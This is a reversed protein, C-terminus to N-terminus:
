WLAPFSPCSSQIAHTTHKHIQIHIYQSLIHTNFSCDPLTNRWLQPEFLCIKAILFTLRNSQTPIIWLSLSFHRHCMFGSHKINHTLDSSVIHQEYFHNSASIQLTISSNTTRSKFTCCWRFLCVTMLCLIFHVCHCIKFFFTNVRIYVRWCSRVLAATGRHESKWQINHM